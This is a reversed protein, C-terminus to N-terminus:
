RLALKVLQVKLSGMPAVYHVDKLAKKMEVKIWVATLFLM